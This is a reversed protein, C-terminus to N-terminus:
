IMNGFAHFSYGDTEYSARLTRKTAAVHVFLGIGPFCNQYFVITILILPIMLAAMGLTDILSSRFQRRLSKIQSRTWRALHQTTLLEWRRMGPMVSIVAFLQFHQSCYLSIFCKTIWMAMTDQVHLPMRWTLREYRMVGGADKVSVTGISAGHRFQWLHITALANRLPIMSCLHVHRLSPYLNAKCILWRMTAKPYPLHSLQRRNRSWTINLRILRPPLRFLDLNINM